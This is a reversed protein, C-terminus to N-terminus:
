RCRYGLGFDLQNLVVWGRCGDTPVIKMILKSILRELQVILSSALVSLDVINYDICHTEGSSLAGFQM